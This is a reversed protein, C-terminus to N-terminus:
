PLWSNESVYRKVLDGSLHRVELVARDHELDRLVVQSEVELRGRQGALAQVLPAGGQFKVEEQREKLRALELQSRALQRAAAAAKLNDKAELWKDRSELGKVEAEADTQALVTKQRSIDRVRKFGDFVPWTLGVSFFYGKVGTLAIPDPTQVAATLGPLLRLRALTVNWSQLEKKLAEIRVDFSRPQSKEWDVGEQPGLVQGRSQRIEFQLTQDPKLGIFSRLREQVRNQAAALREKEVRAVEMEQAAIKAELSTAEGLDLSRQAYTLHRGALDLMLSHLATLRSLAEMELFGNGLEKLGQSIIKLHSLVAVQKILQRIKVGYHAVIPNYPETTFDLTYDTPNTLGARSPQSLYYKTRLNIAPLYDSKSDKEDLRRVEIELASKIFYPSQKLALKVCTDFDARGPLSDSQKPSLAAEAAASATAAALTLFAAVCVTLLAALRGRRVGGAASAQRNHGETM